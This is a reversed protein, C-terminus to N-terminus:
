CDIEFQGTSSIIRGYFSNKAYKDMQRQIIDKFHILMDFNDKNPKDNEALFHFDLTSHFYHQAHENEKVMCRIDFEIMNSPIMVSVMYTDDSTDHLLVVGIAENMLATDTPNERKFNDLKAFDVVEYEDPCFGDIDEILEPGGFILSMTTNEVSYKKFSDLLATAINNFLFQAYRKLNFFAYNTNM